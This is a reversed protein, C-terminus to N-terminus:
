QNRIGAPCELRDHRIDSVILISYRRQPPAVRYWRPSIFNSIVVGSVHFMRLWYAHLHKSRCEGCGARKDTRLHDILALSTDEDVLRGDMPSPTLYCSLSTSYQAEISPGMFNLRATSGLARSLHKQRVECLSHRNLDSIAWFLKCDSTNVSSSEIETQGVLDWRAFRSQQRPYM